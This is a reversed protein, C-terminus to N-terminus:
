LSLILYSLFNYSIRSKLSCWAHTHEATDSERLGWPSYGALSSQGHSEGLLCVPTPQWKRRWPIKRLWSNFGPGGCRCASEKGDRQAVLSAWLSSSSLCFIISILIFFLFVFLFLSVPYSELSNENPREGSLGPWLSRLVEKNLHHDAQRGHM